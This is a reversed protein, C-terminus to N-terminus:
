LIGPDDGADRHWSSFAWDRPHEVLGHKVPNIWCYRVCAAFAEDDRIHHEWFRKQWVSAENGRRVDDRLDPKLGVRQRGGNAGHGNRPLPTPRFGSRRLGATFQAKIAAMRTSFDSDGEPLTWVCHMHDPLVVWADIGFPRKARTVAVAQRLVEVHRVLTDAGRDVLNVTFFVSAGPVKPRIYSSMHRDDGPNTLRPNGITRM